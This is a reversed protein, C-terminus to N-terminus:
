QNKGHFKNFLAKMWWLNQFPALHIAKKVTSEDFGKAKIHQGLELLDEVDSGTPGLLSTIPSAGKYGGKGQGNIIGGFVPTTWLGILGSRALGELILNNPSMDPEKGALKSKIIYSLSGLTTIAIVGQLVNADRRQMGNILVKSTVASFFNTFQMISKGAQLRNALFTIDGKGAAPVNTRIEKNMAAVMTMKANGDTWSAYNAIGTEKDGYKEVQAAIAKAEKEGIHISALYTKEADSLSNYNAIDKTIRHEALYSGAKRSIDVLYHMGSAKGFVDMVKNEVQTAKSPMGDVFSPDFLDRITDSMTRELAMGASAMDELKMGALGKAYDSALATYGHMLTPGLGYRMVPVGLHSIATLVVGGMMQLYTYARLHQLATDVVTRRLYQGTSIDLLDKLLEKHRQLDEGNAKPNNEYESDLKKGLDALTPKRSVDKITGKQLGEILDKGSAETPLGTAVDKYLPESKGVVDNLLTRMHYLRSAQEAYQAVIASMNTKVFPLQEPAPILLEREHTFRIGNYLSKVSKDTLGPRIDGGEIIKDALMGAKQDALDEEIGEHKQLYQSVKEEYGRRDKIIADRDHVVSLYGKEPITMDEPLEGIEKLRQNHTEIHERSRQAAEQVEAIDHKDGDWMAKAGETEFDSRSLLEPDEKHSKLYKAYISDIDAKYSITHEHDQLIKAEVSIDTPTFGGAKTNKVLYPDAVFLKQTLDRVTPSSSMLGELTPARLAKGMSDIAPAVKMLPRTVGGLQIGSVLGNTIKESGLNAIRSDPISVRAAGASGDGTNVALEMRPPLGTKLVTSAYDTAPEIAAHTMYSLAGGVTGMTLASAVVGEGLSDESNGPRATAKSAVNSALQVGAGQAAFSAATAAMDAAKAGAAFEGAIPIAYLPNLIGATLNAVLTTKGGSALLQENHEHDNIKQKWADLDEDSTIGARVAEKAYMGYPTDKIKDLVNYGNTSVLNVDPGYKMMEGIPNHEEVAAVMKDSDLGVSRFIGKAVGISKDPNEADAKAEQQQAPNLAEGDSQPQEPEIPTLRTATDDSTANGIAQDQDIIPM